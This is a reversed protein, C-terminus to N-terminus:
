SEELKTVTPKRIFGGSEHENLLMIVENIDEISFDAYRDWNISIVRKDDIQAVGRRALEKLFTVDRLDMSEFFADQEILTAISRGLRDWRTRITERVQSWSKELRSIRSQYDKLRSQYSSERQNREESIRREHARVKELEGELILKATMLFQRYYHKLMENNPLAKMAEEQLVKFEFGHMGFEAAVKDLPHTPYSWPKPEPKAFNEKAAEIDSCGFKLRGALEQLVDNSLFSNRPMSWGFM